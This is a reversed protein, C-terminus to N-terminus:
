LSFIDDRTAAFSRTQFPSRLPLRLRPHVRVLRNEGRESVRGPAPDHQRQVEFASRHGGALNGIHEFMGPRGRRPMDLHELRGPQEIVFLPSTHADVVDIAPSELQHPIPELPKRLVRM